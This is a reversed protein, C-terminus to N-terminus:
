CGATSQDWWKLLWFTDMREKILNGIVCILVLDGLLLLLWPNRGCIRRNKNIRHWPM